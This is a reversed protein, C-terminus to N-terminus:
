KNTIPFPPESIRAGIRDWILQESTGRPRNLNRYWLMVQKASATNVDELSPYTDSDLQTLRSEEAEYFRIDQAITSVYPNKAHNAIWDTLQKKKEKVLTLAENIQTKTM